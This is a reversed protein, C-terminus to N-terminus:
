LRYCVMECATVYWKWLRNGLATAYQRPYSTLLTYYRFLLIKGSISIAQVSFWRNCISNPLEALSFSNSLCFNTSSHDCSSISHALQSSVSAFSESSFCFKAGAAVTESFNIGSAAVIRLWSRALRLFDGTDSASM